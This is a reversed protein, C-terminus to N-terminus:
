NAPRTLAQRLGRAYHLTLGDFTAPEAWVDKCIAPHFATAATGAVPMWPNDGEPAPIAALREGDLNFAAGGYSQWQGEACRMRVRQTIYDAGMNQRFVTVVTVTPENPNSRDMYSLEVGVAGDAERHATRWQDAWASGGGAVVLGAALGWARTWRAKM